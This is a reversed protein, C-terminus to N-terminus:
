KGRTQHEIAAKVFSVFLPHPHAVTSRYEPHFQVGIFWPHDKIEIIEVLNNKRNIGSITLGAAEFQATYANNFEYRHRHREAIEPKQYISESLSGPLLSCSYSGLRMTGGMNTIKKQEEMIDIVPHPTQEDMETSNAEKLQLVNRSFEIVACQMGLCIGLFPIKNERAYRIAQIKGEVGRYGFGPAVLIGDLGDLIQAPNDVTISESHVPKIIVKCKNAAGAHVFSERISKYSDKLEVYK